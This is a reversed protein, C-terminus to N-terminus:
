QVVVSFFIQDGKGTEDVVKLSIQHEGAERFVRSIKFPGRRIEEWTGMELSGTSNFDWFFRLNRGVSGSADFIIPEGIKAYKKSVIVRAQPKPLEYVVVKKNVTTVNGGKDRIQMRIMKEGATQFTWYQASLGRFNSEWIGDNDIDFRTQANIDSSFKPIFYAREGVFIKAPNQAVYVTPKPNIKVLIRKSEEVLVGDESQVQVVIKWEGLHDFHTETFPNRSFDTDWNGDGNFDWRYL